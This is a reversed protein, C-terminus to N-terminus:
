GTPRCHRLRLEQALDEDYFYGLLVAGEKSSKEVAPLSLGLDRIAAEERPFTLYSMEALILSDADNFPSYGLTVDGRWALYDMINAM